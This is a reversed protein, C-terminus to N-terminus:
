FAGLNQLDDMSGEFLSPTTGNFMDLKVLSKKGSKPIGPSQAIAGACCKTDMCTLLSHLSDHWDQTSGIKWSLDPRTSAASLQGLLANDVGIAAVTRGFGGPGAWSPHYAGGGGVGNHWQKNVIPIVMQNSTSSACTNKATDTLSQHALATGHWLMGLYPVTTVHQYTSISPPSSATPGALTKAATCKDTQCCWAPDYWSCAEYNMHKSVFMPNTSSIPLTLALLMALNRKYKYASTTSFLSADLTFATGKVNNTKQEAQLKQVIELFTKHYSNASDFCSSYCMSPDPAATPSSTPPPLTGAGPPATLSGERGPGTSNTVNYKMIQPLVLEGGCCSANKGDEMTINRDGEKYLTGNYYCCNCARHVIEMSLAPLGLPDDQICTLNMCKEPITVNEGVELYLTFNTYRDLMTHNYFEDFYENELRAKHRYACCVGHHYIEVIKAPMTFDSVNVCKLQRTSCTYNLKTSNFMDDVRYTKKDHECCHTANLSKEFKYKKGVKTCTFVDCDAIYSKGVKFKKGSEDKCTKGDTLTAALIALLCLQLVLGHMPRQHHTNGHSAVATGM